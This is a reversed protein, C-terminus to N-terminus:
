FLSRVRAVREIQEACDRRMEDAVARERCHRRDRHREHQGTVKQPRPNNDSSAAFATHPFDRVVTQYPDQSLM